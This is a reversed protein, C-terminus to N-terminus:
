SARAMDSDAFMVEGLVEGLYEAHHNLWTSHHGPLKYIRVTGSILADWGLFEGLDPYDPDYHRALTLDGQFLSDPRYSEMARFLLYEVYQHRWLPALDRWRLGGSRLQTVAQRLLREGIRLRSPKRVLAPAEVVWICLQAIDEGAAQLRRAVEFAVMGGECGGSLYYPGSSQIERIADLYVTAMEEITALPKLGQTIRSEQLAYVDMRYFAQGPPMAQAATRYGPHSGGAFLPPRAQGARLLELAGPLAAEGEETTGLLGALTRQQFVSALPVTLGAEREMDAVLRVALLSHGGLDFFDDTMGVQEVGLTRAWLAALAQEQETRPAIYEREVGGDPAPLAKRDVKQNPTLPYAEMPVYASPVMYDPLDKQLGARLESAPPLSAGDPLLYAVIRKDGAVDERVIVVADRVGPLATLRAEIEGLEIRYGRVKVQHDTRGLVELRGDKMYRALDGTRYLREGPQFPDPIFREATLEPRNRYGRALGEGGILLEGSVGDPVPNLHDDLVHLRTNAIPHGISITGSADTVQEVASWITTETPGYLNWLTMELQLMSRALDAPLPEGGCLVTLGKKGPWGSELLLRWTSPTAQMVSISQETILRSLAQADSAETRSAVVVEAGNVLPLYLELAAIDFSLTTVALLRDESNLGPQQGMSHLFNMLARHPIEVGKPKGTSGSTYIVYALSEPDLPIDPPLAPESSLDSQADLYLVPGSYAPITDALSQQTLLLALGADECMFALRDSPFAPDLPVYTAGAKMIGLLAVLLDTSRELSLGVLEGPNVTRSLCHALQNARQELASYSLSTEGCRVAIADPSREAQQAVCQPLCINRPYESASDNRSQVIAHQESESLLRLTSLPKDVAAVLDQLLTVFHESLARVTDAHYLDTSYEFFGELGAATEKLELTLDFKSGRTHYEVPELSVDGLASIKRTDQVHLIFMTQFLPTHSTDRPAESLALMEEFPLDQHKFAGTCTENVRSLLEAFTPDGSLDTRLPLSNIFCGFINEIESRNRRAIPSGVCISNVHSYRQLLVKYAALLVTFLTCRQQSALKKLDGALSAPLQFPHFDGRYSIVSPRPFDAPIEVTAHPPALQQQWYDAQTRLVDSDLQDREWRAFDAYDLSEDSLNAAPGGTYEAYLDALERLFVMSSWGDAVIHHITWLLLYEDDALRLLRTQFLPGQALDFAQNADADALADAAAQPDPESRLDHQDISLPSVPHIIQRAGDADGTFTTRLAEHRAVITELAKILSATDLPGRLRYANPLNYAVGDPYMQALFWLREQMFSLPLQGARDARPIPAQQAEGQLLALLEAKNASLRAQLEPTMVGKPARLRLQGEDAWLRIGQESLELLLDSVSM